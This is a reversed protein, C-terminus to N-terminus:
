QQSVTSSFQDSGLTNEAIRNGGISIAVSTTGQRNLGKNGNGTITTSSVLVRSTASNSLEIGDNGNNNITSTSIHATATPNVFVGDFGNDNINSDSIHVTTDSNLLVGYSGNGNINSNSIHATGNSTIHIGYNSNNGSTTFSIRATTAGGTFSYFDGVVVGMSGSLTATSNELNLNATTGTSATVVFGHSSNRTSVTNRITTRTNDIMLVGIFGARELRCNDITTRIFNNSATQRLFIGSDPVTSGGNRIITDTIFVEPNTATSRDISIGHNDFGNIVCNEVYLRNGAPFTIGNANTVGVNNLTLGRIVVTDTTGANVRIADTGGIANSPQATIAVYVGTPATIQVSKTIEVPGYGGSNLAIIEGNVATQTLAYTFTRCPANPNCNGADTGATSVFTRQIGQAQTITSTIFLVTALAILSALTRIM